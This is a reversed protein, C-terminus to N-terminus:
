YNTIYNEHWAQMHYLHVNEVRWQPQQHECRVMRQSYSRNSADMHWVVQFHTIYAGNIHKFLLINICLFHLYWFKFNLVTVSGDSHRHIYRHRVDVPVTSIERMSSITRNTRPYKIYHPLWTRFVPPTPFIHLVPPTHTYVTVRDLGHPM